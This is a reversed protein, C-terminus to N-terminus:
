LSCLLYRKGVIGIAIIRLFKKYDESDINRHPKLGGVKNDPLKGRHYFSTNVARMSTTCGDLFFFFGLKHPNETSLHSCGTLIAAVFKLVALTGKLTKFVFVM